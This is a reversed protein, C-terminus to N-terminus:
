GGEEMTDVEELLEGTDGTPAAGSGITFSVAPEIPQGNASLQVSWNGASLVDGTPEIFFWLCFDDDNVGVTFSESFDPEGEYTWQVSMQTGATMNLARATVYVRQVDAAFARTVTEACDDASRVTLATDISTFTIGSVTSGAAGTGTGSAPDGGAAPTANIGQGAPAPSASWDPRNTEANPDGQGVIQQTPPMAARLTALLMQNRAEVQVVYNEAAAATAAVQTGQADLAQAISTAESVYGERQARLTAAPDEPTIASCASVAGALLLIVAYISKMKLTFHM